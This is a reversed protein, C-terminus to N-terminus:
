KRDRNRNRNKSGTSSKSGGAGINHLFLATRDLFIGIFAFRTGCPSWCTSEVRLVPKNVLVYSDLNLNSKNPHDSDDKQISFSASKKNYDKVSLEIDDEKNYYYKSVLQNQQTWVPKGKEM